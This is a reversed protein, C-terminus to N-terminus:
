RAVTLFADNDVLYEIAGLVLDRDPEAVQARLNALVDQVQERGLTSTWGRESAGAPVYEDEGLERGDFVLCPDASSRPGAGFAIEDAYGLSPLADLVEGWTTIGNLM